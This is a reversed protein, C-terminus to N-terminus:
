PRTLGTLGPSPRQSLERVQDITPLCGATCDFETPHGKVWGVAATRGCAPCVEWTIADSTM